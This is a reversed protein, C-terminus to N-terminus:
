AVVISKILDFLGLLKIASITVATILIYRVFKPGWSVAFKSAVFAGLMNGVALILGM